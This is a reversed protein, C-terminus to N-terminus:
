LAFVDDLVVAVGVVAIASVFLGIMSGSSSDEKTMVAEQDQSLGNLVANYEAATDEDHKKLFACGLLEEDSSQHYVALGYNSTDINFLNADEGMLEAVGNILAALSIPVTSNGELERISQAFWGGNAGEIMGIENINFTVPMNLEFKLSNDRAEPTCEQSDSVGVILTGNLSGQPFNTANTAVFLGNDGITGMVM